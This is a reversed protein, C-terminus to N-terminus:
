IIHTIRQNTNFVKVTYNIAHLNSTSAGPSPGRSSPLDTQNVASKSYIVTFIHKGRYKVVESPLHTYYSGIEIMGSSLLIDLIEDSNDKYHFPIPKNKLCYLEGSFRTPLCRQPYEAPIRGNRVNQKRQDSEYAPRFQEGEGKKARLM